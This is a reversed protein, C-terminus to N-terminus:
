SSILLKHFYQKMCVFALLKVSVEYQICNGPELKRKRESGSEGGNM